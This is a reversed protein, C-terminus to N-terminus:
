SNGSRANSHYHHVTVLPIDCSKSMHRAISAPGFGGGCCYCTAMREIGRSGVEDQGAAATADNEYGHPVVSPDFGENITYAPAGNTYYPVDNPMPLYDRPGTAGPLDRSPVAQPKKYVPYHVKAAGAAGAAL